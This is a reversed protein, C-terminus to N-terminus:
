QDVNDNKEETDETKIGTTKKIDANEGQKGVSTIDGHQMEVTRFTDIKMNFIELPADKGQYQHSKGDDAAIDARQALIQTDAFRLLRFGDLDDPFHGDPIFQGAQEIAPM